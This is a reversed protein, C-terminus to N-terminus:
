SLFTSDYRWYRTLLLLFLFVNWGMLQFSPTSMPCSRILPVQTSYKLCAPKLYYKSRSATQFNLLLQGYLCLNFFRNWVYTSTPFSCRSVRKEFKKLVNSQKTLITSWKRIVQLQRAFLVLIFNWFLCQTWCYLRSHNLIPHDFVYLLADKSTIIFSSFNISGPHVLFIQIFSCM